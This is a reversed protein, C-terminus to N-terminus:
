TIGRMMTKTRRYQVGYRAKGHWRKNGDIVNCSKCVGALRVGDRYERWQRRIRDLFNLRRGDWTRGDVHDIEMDEVLM